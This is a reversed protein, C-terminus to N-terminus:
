RKVLLVETVASNDWNGYVVTNRSPSYDWGAISITHLETVSNTSEDYILLKETAEIGGAGASFVAFGEPDSVMEGITGEGAVDFVPRTRGTTVDLAIVRGRGDDCWSVGVLATTDDLWCGSGAGGSPWVEFTRLGKTTRNLVAVTSTPENQDGPLLEVLGNPSTALPDVGSQPRLGWALDAVETPVDSRYQALVIPTADISSLYVADDESHDEESDDSWSAVYFIATGDSGYRPTYAGDTSWGERVLQKSSQSPLLTWTRENESQPASGDNASSACGCTSALALALLAMLSRATM